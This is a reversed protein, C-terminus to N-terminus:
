QAASGFHDDKDGRSRQQGKTGSSSDPRGRTRGSDNGNRHSSRVPASTRRRSSDYRRPEPLDDVDDDGFDDELVMTLAQRVSFEPRSSLGRLYCSTPLPPAGLLSPCSQTNAAQLLQYLAMEPTPGRRSNSGERRNSEQPLPAAAPDTTPPHPRRERSTRQTSSPRANCNTMTAFPTRVTTSKSRSRFSFVITEFPREPTSLHSIFPLGDPKHKPAM